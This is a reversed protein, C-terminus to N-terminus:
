VTKRSRRYVQFGAISFGIIAFITQIIMPIVVLPNYIISDSYAFAMLIPLSVCIILHIIALAKNGPRIVTILFYLVVSLILASIFCLYKPELVALSFEGYVSLMNTVIEVVEWILTILAPLATVFPTRRTPVLFLIANSLLLIAWFVNKFYDVFEVYKSLEALYIITYVLQITFTILLMVGIAASWRRPNEAPVSASKATYPLVLPTQVPAAARVTVNSGCQPCFTSDDDIFSGCNPCIM